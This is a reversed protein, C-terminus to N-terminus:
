RESIAPMMRQERKRSMEEKKKKDPPSKELSIDLNEGLLYPSREHSYILSCQFVIIFTTM